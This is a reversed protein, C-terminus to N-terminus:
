QSSYKYCGGGIIIPNRVRSTGNHGLYNFQIIEVDQDLRTINARISVWQYSPGTYSGTAIKWNSADGFYKMLKIYKSNGGGGFHKLTGNTDLSFKSNAVELTRHSVYANGVVHLNSTPGNVDVGVGFSANVTDIVVNSNAGVFTAKNTDQFILNGNAAM